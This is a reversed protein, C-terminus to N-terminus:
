SIKEESTKNGGKDYFMKLHPKEGPDIVLKYARRGTKSDYTYRWTNVVKNKRFMIIESVRGKSDYIISKASNPKGNLFEEVTRILGDHYHVKLCYGMNSLQRMQGVGVMHGMMSTDINKYVRTGTFKEDPLKIKRVLKAINENYKIQTSFDLYHFSGLIPPLKKKPMQRIIPLIFTARKERAMQTFAGEIEFKRVYYSKMSANSIVLCFYKCNEIGEEIKQHPQDGVDIELTDLWVSIHHGDLDNKLKEVFKANKRSYAIFVDWRYNRRKAM